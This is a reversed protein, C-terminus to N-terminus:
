KNINSTTNGIRGTSKSVEQFLPANRFLIINRKHEVRGILTMVIIFMLFLNILMIGEDLDAVSFFALVNLVAGIGLGGIIIKNCKNLNHVSEEMKQKDRIAIIRRNYIKAEEVMAEHKQPHPKDNGYRMNMGSELKELYYAYQEAIAVDQLTYNQSVAKLAGLNAEIGYEYLELANDFYELAIDFKDELLYEYGQKVLENYQM